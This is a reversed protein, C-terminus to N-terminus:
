EEDMVKFKSEKHRKLFMDDMIHKLASILSYLNFIKNMKYNVPENKMKPTFMNTNSSCKGMQM